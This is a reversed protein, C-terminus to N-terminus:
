ISNSSILIQYIGVYYSGVPPATLITTQM